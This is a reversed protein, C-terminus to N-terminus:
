RTPMVPEVIALDLKPRHPRSSDVSIKVRVKDFTRLVCGPARLVDKKADVAVGYATINTIIKDFGVNETNDYYDAFDDDNLNYKAVFGDHEASNTSTSLSTFYLDQNDNDVWVGHPIAGELYMFKTYWAFSQYRLMLQNPQVQM